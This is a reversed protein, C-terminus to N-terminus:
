SRVNCHLYPYEGDGPPVQTVIVLGNEPAHWSDRGRRINVLYPINSGLFACRGARHRCRLPRNFISLPLGDM